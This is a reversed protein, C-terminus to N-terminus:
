LFFACEFCICQKHMFNFFPASLLIQVNCTGDKANMEVKLPTKCTKLLNHM